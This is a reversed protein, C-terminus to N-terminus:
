FECKLSGGEPEEEVELLGLLDVGHSDDVGEFEHVRALLGDNNGLERPENGIVWAVVLEVDGPVVVLGDSQNAGRSAADGM